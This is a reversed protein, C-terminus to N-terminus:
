DKDGEVTLRHLFQLSGERERQNMNGADGSYWSGEPYDLYCYFVGVRAEKGVIEKIAKAFSEASEHIKEAIQKDM